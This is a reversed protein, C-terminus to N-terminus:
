NIGRQKSEITLWGFLHTSVLSSLLASETPNPVIPRFSSRLTNRLNCCVSPRKRDFAASRCPHLMPQLPPETRTRNSRIRLVLPKRVSRLQHPVWRSDKRQNRTCPRDLKPQRRRSCNRQMSHLPLLDITSPEGVAGAMRNSRQEVEAEAVVELMVRSVTVCHQSVAHRDLGGNSDHFLLFSVKGIM